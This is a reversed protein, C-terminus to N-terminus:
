KGPCCQNWAEKQDFTACLGEMFALEAPKLKRQKHWMLYIPVDAIGKKPPLRRLNGELEDKRAQHEPLCGLGFGNRILRRLEEISNVYAVTEGTFQGTERFVALP